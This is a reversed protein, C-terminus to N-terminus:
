TPAPAITAPPGLLYEFKFNDAGARLIFVPSSTTPAPFAASQVVPARLITSGGSQNTAFRISSSNHPIVVEVINNLGLNQLHAPYNATATYSTISNVYSLVDSTTLSNLSTGPPYVFKFKQAGSVFGFLYSLKDLLSFASAPTPSPLTFYPLPITSGQTTTGIAFLTSRTTLDSINSVASPIIPKPPIAPFIDNRIGTMSAEDPDDGDYVQAHPKPKKLLAAATAAPTAIYPLYFKDINFYFQMDPSSHWVNIDVSDAVTSSAILPNLVTVYMRGNFTTVGNAGSSLVKDARCVDFASVFPISFNCTDSERVDWVVSYTNNSDYTASANTPGPVYLIRLRGSHYATKAISFRYNMTGKWFRFFNAVYSQITEYQTTGELGSNGINPSVPHDFLEDGAANTASWSFQRVIAERKCLETISDMEQGASNNGLTINPMLQLPVSRDVKQKVNFARAPINAFSTSPTDDAQAHPKDNSPKSRIGKIFTTSGRLETSLVTPLDAAYGTPMTLEPHKFYAYISYSCSSPAEASSLPNLVFLQFRGLEQLLNNTLDWAHNEIVFPVVLEASRGTGADIELHPFSSLSSLHNKTQDRPSGTYFPRFVGLLKGAYFPAANVMVRIVISAKFYTFGSLKNSVQQNAAILSSPFDIDVLPTVVSMDAPAISLVSDSSSWTGTSIITPRSLVGLIENTESKGMGSSLPRNPNPPSTVLVNTDDAFTVTEQKEEKSRFPQEIDSTQTLPENSTSTSNLTNPKAVRIKLTQLFLRTLSCILVRLM